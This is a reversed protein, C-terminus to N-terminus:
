AARAPIYSESARAIEDAASHLDCSNDARRIGHAENWDSTRTFDYAILGCRASWSGPRTYHECTSCRPM